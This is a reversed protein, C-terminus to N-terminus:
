TRPLVGALAAPINTERGHKYRLRCTGCGLGITESADIGMNALRSYTIDFFNCYPKLAELGQADYFKNVACEDFVLALDDGGGEQYRYVFDAAHRREQSRAAQKKFVRKVPATFALRGVLRLLFPPFARFFDDAVEACIRVTDEATKGRAAMARYLSIGWGNVVMVPTFINKRGGIYPIEPLIREFEARADGRVAAAFDADYREALRGEARKAFRDFGRLLKGRRAEYYGRGNAENM